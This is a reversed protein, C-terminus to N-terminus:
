SASGVHKWSLGHVASWVAARSVRLRRAISRQTEGGSAARRIEVVALETLRARPHREGIAHRGRELADNSNDRKTGAYLHEPNVCKRNDCRHLVCLGDPIAGVFIGYAYRSATLNKGGVNVRAYGCSDISGQWEWCGTARVLRVGRYIRERLGPRRRGRVVTAIWPNESM